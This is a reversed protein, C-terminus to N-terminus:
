DVGHCCICAACTAQLCVSSQLVVDLVIHLPLRLMSVPHVAFLKIPSYASAGITEDGVIAARWATGLLM